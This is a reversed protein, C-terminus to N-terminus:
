DQNKDLNRRIKQDPDNEHKCGWRIGVEKLYAPSDACVCLDIQRGESNEIRKMYDCDICKHLNKDM